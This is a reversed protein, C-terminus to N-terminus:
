RSGGESVSPACRSRELRNNAGLLMRACLAFALAISLPVPLMGVYHLRFGFWPFEGHYVWPKYAWWAFIVTLWGVAVLISLAISPIPRVIAVVALVAVPVAVYFLAGVQAISWLYDPHSWIGPSHAVEVAVYSVTGTVLAILVCLSINALRKVMPGLSSTSRRPIEGVDFSPV